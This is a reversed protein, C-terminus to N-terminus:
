INSWDLLVKGSQGSAMTQFGQQYDKASFRHTIVTSIDLGAQLMAMMKYWTSYMKRGYIGQINLCKFIVQNWDIHTDQPLIGLLAIGAGNELVSIMDNFAKSNGSMELGVGFGDIKLTSMVEKLAQKQINVAATAGMKQALSLRYDNMDTIVVHRAGCHKALAVAMIGIPGAGTILVDKGAVDYTFVCHAANGFPDLIAAVDDSLDDPLLIVNTAPMRLFQTFAGATNVGIGKTYPCLHAQGTRCFKCHGCVLHGEGSVRDGVKVNQVNAGCAVIRGFFEHGVVMPVPINKQAWDDWHYIHMDTGCIATKEIKILVDEPGYTPMDVQELWIGPAKQAKVLAFIKDM